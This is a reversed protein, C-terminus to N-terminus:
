DDRVLLVPLRTPGLQPTVAPAVSIAPPRRCVAPIVLAFTSGVGPASRVTIHGGLLEALKRSLPLGLGTGKVRRQRPSDLQTFDQFITDQDEAAIGIGTD